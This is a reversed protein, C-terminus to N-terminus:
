PKETSAKDAEELIRRLQSEQEATFCSFALLKNNFTSYTMGLRQAIERRDLHLSYIREKYGM